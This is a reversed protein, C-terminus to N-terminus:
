KRNKASVSVDSAAQDWVQAVAAIQLSDTSEILHSRSLTESDPAEAPVESQSQPTKELERGLLGVVSCEIILPDSCVKEPMVPQVTDSLLDLLVSDTALDDIEEDGPIAAAAPAPVAEATVPLPTVSCNDAWITYDAGDVFLDVNFDGDSWVGSQLYHDAFVQYDLFDVVDDGNADGPKPITIPPIISVTVSAVPAAAAAPAETAACDGQWPTASLLSRIELSEVRLSRKGPHREACFLTSSALRSIM